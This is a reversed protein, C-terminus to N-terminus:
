VPHIATHFDMCLYHPSLGGLMALFIPEGQVIKLIEAETPKWAVVVQQAGDISGGKVIGIYASITMCQSEDLDSPARFSSNAEPFDFPIMIKGM